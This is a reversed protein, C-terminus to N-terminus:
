RSDELEVKSSAIPSPKVRIDGSSSRLVLTPGGRNLKGQLVGSRQEGKVTTALPLETIIRGGSSRADVDMAATTPLGVTIGGGAVELRCEGQPAAGFTVQVTGSTTQAFVTERADSIKIEGGSNHAELKGKVRGVIISGSTTRITADNAVEGLIVDGGSNKAVVAGKAAKVKISGSTTELVVDADAQGVSIGGGSNRADLKGKVRPVNISGSTTRITLAGEATGVEINGGSNRLEAAKGKVEGVRISGSTTHAVVDGGASEIRVDGGANKAQVGGVVSGLIISGSTTSAVVEAGAADIRINGGANSADVTGKTAHLTISGSTTHANVTGGANNVSIDGGADRAEVNGTVLGFRVSGSTTTAIAKGDLDGVHVDGGATKLDVDFRRPISVVYHVDLYAQGTRWSWSLKSKTKAVVSVTNGDQQITVEHDTVLEEARSKTGGKVKRFVQVHVQNNADTAVEISGRDAQIVLKGGSAVAFTKDLNGEIETAAFSSTFLLLVMVLGAAGSLFCPKCKM